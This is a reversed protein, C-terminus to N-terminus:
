QIRVECILRGSNLNGSIWLPAQIDNDSDRNIGMVVFKDPYKIPTDHIELDWVV